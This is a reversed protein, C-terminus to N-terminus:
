IVQEQAGSKNQLGGKSKEPKILKVLVAVLGAAFVYMLVIGIIPVAGGALAGEIYYGKYLWTGPLMHAMGTAAGFLYATPSSFLARSRIAGVFPVILIPIQLVLAIAFRADRNIACVKITVYMLSIVLLGIIASTAIAFIPKHSVPEVRIDNDEVKLLRWIIAEIIYLASPIIPIFSFIGGVIPLILTFSLILALSGGMALGGSLHYVTDSKIRDTKISFVFLTVVICFVVSIPIVGLVKILVDDTAFGITFLSTLLGYVAFVVTMIRRTLLKAKNREM